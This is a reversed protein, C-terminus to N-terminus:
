ININLYIAGWISLQGYTVIEVHPHNEIEFAPTNDNCM